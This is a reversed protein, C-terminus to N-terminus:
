VHNRWNCKDTRLIWLLSAVEDFAEQGKEGYQKTYLDLVTNKLRVLDGGCEDVIKQAKVEGLGTIGPINDTRDGTIMQRFLSVNADNLTVWYPRKKVFNYHWGPIMDLDKDISVICTSKDNAAWQTMGLADDAEMGDIVEAGYRDVMFERIEKYYLPRRQDLRNGKYPLITALHERFNHKGTIFFRYSPADPFVALINEVAQKVTQLHHSIPEDDKAAFGCRYM